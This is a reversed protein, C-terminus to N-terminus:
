KKPWVRSLRSAYEKGKDWRVDVYHNGKEIITGSDREWVLRDGVNLSQAKNKAEDYADNEKNVARLLWYLAGMLVLTLPITFRWYADRDPHKDCSAISVVLPM